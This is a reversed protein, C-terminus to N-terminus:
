FSSLSPSFFIGPSCAPPLSPVCWNIERSQRLAIQKERGSILTLIFQSRKFQTLYTEVLVDIDTKIPVM